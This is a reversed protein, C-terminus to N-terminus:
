TTTTVMAVVVAIVFFCLLCFAVLWQLLWEVRGSTCAYCCCCLNYQWCYCLCSSYCFLLQQQVDKLRCATNCCYASFGFFVFFLLYYYVAQQDVTPTSSHVACSALKNYGRPVKVNSTLWNAVVSSDTYYCCCCIHLVLYELRHYVNVVKSMNSGSSNRPAAASQAM